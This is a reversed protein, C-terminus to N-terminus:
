IEFADGDNPAVIEFPYRDKFGEIDNYNDLPWVHTFFVKKAKCMDLYPKIHEANFHAMECVFADIDEQIIAPVDRAALKASFDGGFLVRSEGETVLISYSNKMHSNCIYEVKINEDEYVVGEKAWQFRIRKEDIDTIGSSYIFQKISDIHAKDTVYFDGAADTYYWNMLVALHIMGCTHDTHTHTTFLARFDHVDRHMRIIMEAIPAGADIFYMSGNSELMICSCFRNPAPVGHSTGVFTMKM